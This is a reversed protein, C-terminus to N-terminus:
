RGLTLKLALVRADAAVVTGAPLEGTRVARVLAGYAAKSTRDAAGGTVGAALVM